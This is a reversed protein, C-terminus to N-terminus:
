CYEEGWDPGIDARHDGAEDIMIGNHGGGGAMVADAIADRLAPIWLGSRISIVYNAGCNSDCWISTLRRVMLEPLADVIRKMRELEHLVAWRSAIRVGRYDFSSAPAKPGAADYDIDRQRQFAAWAEPAIDLPPLQNDNM